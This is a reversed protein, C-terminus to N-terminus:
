VCEEGKFLAEEEVYKPIVRHGLARQWVIKATMLGQYPNRGRVSENGATFSIM